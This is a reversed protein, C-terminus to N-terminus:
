PMLGLVLAKVVAQLKNTCSLKKIVNAVHFNVTRRSMKLISGIEVATKGEATWLMVERERLTLPASVGPILDAFCNKVVTAHGTQALWAFRLSKALIEAQQLSSETRALSLFGTIGSQDRASHSWGFKLGYSQAEHWLAPAAAFLQDSWVLPTHLYAGALTVTPDISCYNRERYRVTWGSPYNDFILIRQQKISLPIRIGYCCYQFGLSQAGDAFKAFIAEMTNAAGFAAILDHHWGDMATVPETLRDVKFDSLTRCLRSSV